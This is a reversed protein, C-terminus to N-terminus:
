FVRNVLEISRDINEIGGESAIEFVIWGGWGNEKLVDACAGYDVLGNGFYSYYGNHLLFLDPGIPLDDPIQAVCEKWHMLPIRDMMEKLVAEPKGGCDRVHGVDPCLGICGPDFLGMFKRIDEHTWIISNAENHILLQVDFTKTLRGLEHYLEVMREEDAEGTDPVRVPPNIPMYRCGADRIMSAYEKLEEKVREQKEKTKWLGEVDAVTPAAFILDTCFASSLELGEEALAKGFERGSGFTDLVNQKSGPGFSLELGSFGKEKLFQFLTPFFNKNAPYKSLVLEMFSDMGFLKPDYISNVELSYKIKDNEELKM